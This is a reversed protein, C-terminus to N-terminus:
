RNFFISTKVTSITKNTYILSYIIPFKEKDIVINERRLIPSGPEIDLMKAHDKDASIADLYDISKNLIINHKKNLIRYLSQNQGDLSFDKLSLYQVKVSSIYNIDITSPTGDLFRIRKLFFVYSDSELNLISIIKKEPIVKSLKLIKQSPNYGQKIAEETFSTVKFTIPEFFHKKRVFTGKGSKVELLNDNILNNTAQRITVRSINLEDMFEKETPIKNNVSLRGDKICDRLFKEIQYYIPIPSDRDIRLEKLDIM